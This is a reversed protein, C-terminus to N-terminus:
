RDTTDLRLALAEPQDVTISATATCNHADKLDVTHSGASLGSYTKPSTETAFAGGDIRLQYPSTGGDFTATVSGDSGGNCQVNQKSLSLSLAPPQGVTLSATATCNHADKLDVTYSGAALGTFTKPSTAAAFAGGDLQIMYPATGGSFTATVTGDSGGNCQVDTKSLSLALAPPEGVTASASA